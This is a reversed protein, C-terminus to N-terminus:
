IVLYTYFRFLAIDNTNKICIFENHKRNPIFHQGLHLSTQFHRIIFIIFSSPNLAFNHLVYLQKFLKLLFIFIYIVNDYFM